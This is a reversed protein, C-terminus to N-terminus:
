AIMSKAPLPFVHDDVLMLRGPFTVGPRGNGAGAATGCGVDDVGPEGAGCAGVVESATGGRGMTGPTTNEFTRCGGIFLPIISKM